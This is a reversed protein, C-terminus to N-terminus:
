QCIHSALYEPLYIVKLLTAFDMAADSSPVRPCGNPSEATELPAQAFMRRFIPSHFSLISTHVRFLTSECLVEVNGDKLYFMSHPTITTPDVPPVNDLTDTITFDSLSAISISTSQTIPSAPITKTGPTTTSELTDPQPIQPEPDTSPLGPSPAVTALNHDEQDVGIPGSKATAFVPPPPLGKWGSERLEILEQPTQTLEM